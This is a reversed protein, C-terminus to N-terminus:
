QLLNLNKEKNGKLSVSLKLPGAAHLKCKAVIKTTSISLWTFLELCYKASPIKAKSSLLGPVSVSVCM